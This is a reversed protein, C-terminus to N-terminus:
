DFSEGQLVDNLNAYSVAIQNRLGELSFQKRVDLDATLSRDRELLPSFALLSTSRETKKVRKLPSDM